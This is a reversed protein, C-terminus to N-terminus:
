EQFDHKKTLSEPAVKVMRRLLFLAVAVDDLIGFFLLFDPIFDFPFVIYGIILFAYTLRTAINVEKSTFFDKIFPIYNQFKM